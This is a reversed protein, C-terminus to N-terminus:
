FPEIFSIRARLSYLYFHNLLIPLMFGALSSHPLPNPSVRVSLCPFPVGWAQTAAVPRGVSRGARQWSEQGYRGLSLQKRGRRKWGFCIAKGLGKIVHVTALTLTRVDGTVLPDGYTIKVRDCPPHYAIKSGDGPPGYTIKPRDGRHRM